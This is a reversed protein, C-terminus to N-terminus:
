TVVFGLREQEELTLSFSNKYKRRGSDEKPVTKPVVGRGLKTGGPVTKPVVRDPDVAYSFSVEIVNTNGKRGEYFEFRMGLDNANEKWYKIAKRASKENVGVEKAITPVSATCRGHSIIVTLVALNIAGHGGRAIQNPIAAFPYHIAM